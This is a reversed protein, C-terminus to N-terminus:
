DRASMFLRVMYWLLLAVSAFLSLAAAVHQDTRYRHLVQSTHYLIAGGAFAVMAVSFWTGLAVGFLISIVILALAGFALVSLIGRLFSFDKKSILVVATLGAFVIGTAVGAKMIADADYIKAIYLLPLFIVAEAAVYLFLGAYQAAPAIASVAWKEAVWSVIMFMVLVLWWASLMSFAVAEIGPLSLLLAELGVFAAIALALHQYTRHIFQIRAEEHAHAVTSWGDEQIRYSSM